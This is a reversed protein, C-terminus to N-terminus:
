RAGGENEASTHFADPWGGHVGIVEDIEALIRITESIAIAVSGYHSVNEETPV